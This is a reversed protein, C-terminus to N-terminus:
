IRVDDFVYRRGIGIFSWLNLGSLKKKEIKETSNKLTPFFYPFIFHRHATASATSTLHRTM